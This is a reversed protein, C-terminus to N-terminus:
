MTFFSEELGDHVPILLASSPSRRSSGELADFLNLTLPARARIRADVHRLTALEAPVAIANIVTAGAM